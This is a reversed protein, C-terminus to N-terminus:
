RPAGFDRPLTKSQSILAESAVRYYILIELYGMNIPSGGSPKRDAKSCKRCFEMDYDRPIVMYGLNAQARAGM